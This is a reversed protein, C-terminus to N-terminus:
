VQKIIDQVGCEASEELITVGEQPFFPVPSMPQRGGLLEYIRDLDQLVQKRRWADEQDKKNPSSADEGL